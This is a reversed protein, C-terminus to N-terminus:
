IAESATVRGGYIEAALEALGAEVVHRHRGFYAVWRSLAEPSELWQRLRGAFESLPIRLLNATGFAADANLQLEGALDRLESAAPKLDHRLRDLLPRLNARGDLNAYIERFRPDMGAKRCESEWEAVSALASFDSQPGKWFSGFAERGLAALPASQLADRARQGELLRDLLGIRAELAMPRDSKLIGRLTARARRYAGYFIRLWRRGYAALDRRAAAVDTDWGAEVVVDALEKRCENYRRGTDILHEIQERCDNWVATALSSRDMTPASQFRQALQALGSLDRLGVPVSVGLTDALETAAGMLRDLRELIGPLKALLREVDTPLVVGLEVGRWPHDKPVGVYRLHEVLDALLGRRQHFDDRTWQAADSLRFQPPATGGAQLRVLEGVVQYPTLGSSQLPTHIARLHANLRDRCAALEQCHQPVDPAQPQGLRLTRDLDDLVARKNAKHSHLELCMEGLGINDMRRRVVELAAMKEAVFLIRKGAKVAAAILNAITQSKGTGPPGQIVLNRGRKVEEIAVAQSSDADLVHIMDVPPILADIPDADGCLPPEGRFGEGLLSEVIPHRDLARDEPWNGPDLDRYMLFKSFSFFWLVIDNTFVEFRTQTEVARAVAEFYADPSLEELDPVDPLEIGFDAKLRAQLSLNTVIDDDAFRLKFRASASSRELVVPVLLLPAFRERDSGPEEYWKLFGLALYLISVGQEEEYTRADYFLKLLRKQLQDSSLQTQLKDDTHRVAPETDDGPQLLSGREEADPSEVSEDYRAPLFSMAKKEVILQRFVESSFEDVIELRSSRARSRVTSLLRNRASLDLLERRANELAAHLGADAPM